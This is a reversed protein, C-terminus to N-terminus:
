NELFSNWDDNTHISKSSFNTKCRHLQGNTKTTVTEFLLTQQLHWRCFAAYKYWPTELAPPSM